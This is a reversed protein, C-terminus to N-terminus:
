IALEIRKAAAEVIPRELPRKLDRQPDSINIKRRCLDDVHYPIEHTKSQFRPRFVASLQYITPPQNPLTSLARKSIMAPM